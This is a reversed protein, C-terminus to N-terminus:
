ENKAIELEPLYPGSDTLTAAVLMFYSMRGIIEVRLKKIKKDPYPNVLSFLYLSLMGEPNAGTWVPPLRLFHTHRAWKTDQKKHYWNFIDKKDSLQVLYSTGDEYYIKYRGGPGRINAASHLLYIGAAKKNINIDAYLSLSKKKQANLLICTKGNNKKPNIINFPINLLHIQGKFNYKEKDTDKKGKDEKEEDPFGINDARSLDVPTFNQKVDKYKKKSLLKPRYEKITYKIWNDVYIPGDYKKSVTGVFRVGYDIVTDPNLPALAYLGIRITTWEGPIVRFSKADAWKKWGDSAVFVVADLTDVGDHPMYVQCEIFKVSSWFESKNIRMGCKIEAGPKLSLDLEFVGKGHGKRDEKRIKTEEIPVFPKFGKTIKGYIPDKNDIFSTFTEMEMPKDFDSIFIKDFFKEPNKEIEITSTLTQPIDEPKAKFFIINDLYIKFEGETGIIEGAFQQM